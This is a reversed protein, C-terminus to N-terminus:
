ASAKRTPVRWNMQKLASKSARGSLERSEAESITSCAKTAWLLGCQVPSIYGIARGNRNYCLDSSIVDESLNKM